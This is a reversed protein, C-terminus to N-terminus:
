QQNAKVSDYEPATCKKGWRLITASRQAANEPYLGKDDTQETWQALITRHRLLDEQYDPNAALNITEHPDSRLDYLEEAPRFESWFTSQAENLEGKKYMEKLLRTIDKGDRYQPQMYPRDPYGNKIYRFHETRVTRIRDITYDCRDRASIVCDRQYGPAFIDLGEMYDPIPIGALSLSTTPIDIGSILDHRPSGGRIKEQHAPWSIALPVHLGGDYCFQKHRLGINWGHDSFVFVVTNQYMNHDKLKQLIASLERDIIRAQDFHRAWYNRVLPVDPYCPPVKVLDPDIPPISAKSKGGSLQIQGFFPQSSEVQNWSVPAGLISKIFDGKREVKYKGSYLDERNYSFNYDDKGQNFTYYGEARFLEPITHFGEPLHIMSEETRSSRHHHIGLSTQMCGTILASRTSSCVPAPMFAKSFLVGEHALQDFVPTPNFDYGYCSMLPSQDEIYVWLINPRDPATNEEAKILGLFSTICAIFRLSTNILTMLHYPSVRYRLPSLKSIPRLWGTM